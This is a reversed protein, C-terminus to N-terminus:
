ARSISGILLGLGPEPDLVGILRQEDAFIKGQRQLDHVFYIDASPASVDQCIVPVVIAEVSHVDLLTCAAFPSSSSKAEACVRYFCPQVHQLLNDYRECGEFAHLKTALDETRPRSPPM